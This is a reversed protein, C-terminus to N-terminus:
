VLPGFYVEWRMSILMFLYLLCFGPCVSLYNQPQSQYMPKTHTPQNTLLHTTYLVSPSTDNAMASTSLHSQRTPWTEKPTHSRTLARRKKSCSPQKDDAIRATRHIDYLLYLLVVCLCLQAWTVRWRIPITRNNKEM